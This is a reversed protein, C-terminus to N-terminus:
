WIMTYSDKRNLFKDIRNVGTDFNYLTYLAEKYDESRCKSSDYVAANGDKYYIIAIEDGTVVRIMIKEINSLDSIDVGTDTIENAYDM